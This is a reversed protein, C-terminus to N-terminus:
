ESEGQNVEDQVCWSMLWLRREWWRDSEQGEVGSEFIMQKVFGKRRLRELKLQVAKRSWPSPGYKSPM